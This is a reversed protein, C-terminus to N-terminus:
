FNNVTFQLIFPPPLWWSEFSTCWGRAERGRWSAGLVCFIHKSSMKLYDNSVSFVLKETHLFRLWSFCQLHLLWHGRPPHAFGLIPVACNMQIHSSDKIVTKIRWQSFYLFLYREIVTVISTSLPGERVPDKPRDTMCPAPQHLLCM